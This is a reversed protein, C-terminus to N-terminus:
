AGSTRGSPPIRCLHPQWYLGRGGTGGSATQWTPPCAQSRNCARRAIDERRPGSGVAEHHRGPQFLATGAREPHSLGQAMEDLDLYSTNTALIAHPQLEAELNALVERKVGMDEFVAEIVLDCGTLASPEVAGTLAECRDASEAETLRGKAVQAALSDKLKDLASTLTAQDREMLVVPIGAALFARVIGQGMTGGGVVGVSGISLASKPDIGAVSAARREAFFLYRMALSDPSRRLKQFTAREDALAAVVDGGSAMVLRIAEKVNPRGKGGKLAKAAAAQIAEPIEEPPLIDRARRKPRRNAHLFELTDSLLDGESLRDVLGISLAEQANIRAARCILDIARSQGILRPLRQTGGAGPVFGLSVEPLGVKTDPAAIRYDCGLALELGGGLAVGHLAAVVPFPAVEIMAIVDPLEPYALTKNFERLDSGAIFSRGAGLLVAGRAGADTAQEIGAVLGERVSHSGANVPPNDIELIAITGDMRFGVKGPSRASPQTNM